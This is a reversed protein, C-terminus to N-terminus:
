VRGPTTMARITSGDSGKDCQVRMTGSVDQGKGSFELSKPASIMSPKMSDHTGLAWACHKDWLLMDM